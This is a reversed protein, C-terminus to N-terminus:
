AENTSTAADGVPLLATNHPEGAPWRYGSVRSTPFARINVADGQNGGLVLLDGNARRGVVFGVHGGGVRTFVVICGYAPTDLKEGWDLYSKASEFRTSRIGVRELMAGVFAACWPTEDDKIGGRKINRWFQVIEPNHKAGKIETLGIHKRAEILWRPEINAM